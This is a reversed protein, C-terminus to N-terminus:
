PVRAAFHLLPRRHDSTRLESHIGRRRDLQLRRRRTELASPHQRAAQHCRGAGGPGWIVTAGRTQGLLSGALSALFAYWAAEVWFARGRDLGKRPDFLDLRVRTM